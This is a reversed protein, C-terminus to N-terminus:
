GFAEDARRMHVGAVVGAHDDRPRHGIRFGSLRLDHEARARLVELLALDIVHGLADAVGVAQDVDALGFGEVEDGGLLSRCRRM